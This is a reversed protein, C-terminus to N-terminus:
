RDADKWIRSNIQHLYVYVQHFQHVVKQWLCACVYVSM